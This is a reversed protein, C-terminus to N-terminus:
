YASPLVDLSLDLIPADIIGRGAEIIDAGARIAAEIDPEQVGGAFAIKVQSRWGGAEAASIAAELDSIKGTDAMIIGAGAHYAEAAEEGVPGTEGRVQVSVTRDPDYARAKHVANGVGGLMRVYNKDLYIFPGDTIRIGAGGTMIAQRLDGRLKPSVKKWAGCVVRVRGGATKVLNAAATAVGSPKGIVGMLTEEARIIQEPDGSAKFVCGGSKVEHGENVSKINELGIDYALQRLQAVGSVIGPERTTINFYWKRDRLGKFLFERLEVANV